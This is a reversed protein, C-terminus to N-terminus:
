WFIYVKAHIKLIEAFTRILSCFALLIEVKKSPLVEDKGVSLGRKNLFLGRKNLFLGRKNLFLGPNNSFLSRKDLM